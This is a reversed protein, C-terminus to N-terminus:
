PNTADRLVAPLFTAVVSPAYYAVRVGCIQNSSDTTGWAYNLTLQGSSGSVTATIENSVAFGLGGSGISSVSVLDDSSLGPRYKTLWVTMDSGPSTDRYYIRVFKIVSGDPIIVPFSLRSDSGGTVHLCGVGDYGFALTSSRPQLQSGLIYFYSFTAAANVPADPGAAWAASDQSSTGSSDGGDGTKPGQAAVVGAGSVLIAVVGIAVLALLAVVVATRQTRM